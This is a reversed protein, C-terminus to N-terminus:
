PPPSGSFPFQGPEYPHAHDNTDTRWGWKGDRGSLILLLSALVDGWSRSSISSHFSYPSSFCFMPESMEVEVGVGEVVFVGELAGGGTEWVGRVGELGVFVEGEVGRVVAMRRAPRSAAAFAASALDLGLVEAGLGDGSAFSSLAAGVPM